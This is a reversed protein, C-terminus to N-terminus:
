IKYAQFDVELGSINVINKLKARKMMEKKFSKSIFPKHNARITKQKYPAYISLLNYFVNNFNNFNYNKNLLCLQNNLKIRFDVKNFKDFNRFPCVIPPLKLNTIKFMTYILHHVDSLGTEITNTFQFYSKRNTLIFDICTGRTSKFCTNKQM